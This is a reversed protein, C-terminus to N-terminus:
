IRARRSFSKRFLKHSFVSTYASPRESISESSGRRSAIRAFSAALPYLIDASISVMTVLGCNRFLRLLSYSFRSSRLQWGVKQHSKLDRQSPMFPHFAFNTTGGKPRLRKTDHFPNADFAQPRFAPSRVIKRLAKMDRQSAM